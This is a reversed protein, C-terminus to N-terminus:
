ETLCLRCADALKMRRNQQMRYPLSMPVNMADEHTFAIIWGPGLLPIEPGADLIVHPDRDESM